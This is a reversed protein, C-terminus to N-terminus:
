ASGVGLGASGVGLRASGLSAQGLWASGLGAKGLAAWGLGARHTDAHARTHTHTHAHTRTHTHTRAHTHTHTNSRADPLIAQRFASRLKITQAARTVAPSGTHVRKKNGPYVHPAQETEKLMRRLM